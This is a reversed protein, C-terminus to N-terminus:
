GWGPFFILVRLDTGALERLHAQWAKLLAFSIPDAQAARWEESATAGAEDMWASLDACSAWLIPAMPVPRYTVFYAAFEEDSADLLTNHKTLREDRYKPEFLVYTEDAPLDGVYKLGGHEAYPVFKPAFITEGNPLKFRRGPKADAPELRAFLKGLIISTACIKARADPLCSRGAYRESVIKELRTVRGEWLRDVVRWVARGEEDVHRHLIPLDIEFGM